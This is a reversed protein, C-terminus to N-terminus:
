GYNPEPNIIDDVVLLWPKRVKAHDNIKIYASDKYFVVIM